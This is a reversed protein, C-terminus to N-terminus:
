QHLKKQIRSKKLRKESSKATKDNTVSLTKTFKARTARQAAKKQGRPM